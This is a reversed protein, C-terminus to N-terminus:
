QAGNAQAGEPLPYRRVFRVLIAAGSAILVSGITLLLYEFPIGLFHGSVFLVFTLLGYGHLRKLGM